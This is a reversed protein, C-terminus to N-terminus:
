GTEYNRERICQQLQQMGDLFQELTLRYRRQIMRIGIFFTSLVRRRQETNAQM